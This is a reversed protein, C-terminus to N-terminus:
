ELRELFTQVLVRKVRVIEVIEDDGCGRETVVRTQEARQRQCAHSRPRHSKNVISWCPRRGQPKYKYFRHDCVVESGSLPQIIRHVCTLGMGGSQSAVFHHVASLSPSISDM